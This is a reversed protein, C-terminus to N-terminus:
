PAFVLLRPSPLEVDAVEIWVETEEPVEAWVRRELEEAQEETLAAAVVYKWRRAVPVGDGALKQELEVADECDPLKACVHWGFDGDAAAERAEAAEKRAYEAQREQDTQPLPVSADKWTEEIPHWRTLTIEATLEHTAVLDRVVREAERAYREDGAYLFMRSGDRTVIVRGGLRERAEDDLDLSRLRDGLSYGHEDDLDVEVRFEDETM